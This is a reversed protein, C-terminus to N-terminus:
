LYLIQAFILFKLLNLFECHRHFFLVSFIWFGEELNVLKEYKAVGQGYRDITINLIDTQRNVCLYEDCGRGLHEGFCHYEELFCIM